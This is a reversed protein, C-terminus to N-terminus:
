RKHKKFYILLGAGVVAITVSSVIAVTEIPFSGIEQSSPFHTPSPSPEGVVTFYVLESVVIPYQYVPGSSSMWDSVVHSGNYAPGRYYSYSLATVNLTHQGSETQNLMCFLSEDRVWGFGISDTHNYALPISKGDLYAEVSKLLAYYPPIPIAVERKWSDPITVTLSVYVAADNKYTTNNTPREITLTPKDTIPTSPWFVPNAIALEVMHLGVALSLVLLIIRTLHKKIM